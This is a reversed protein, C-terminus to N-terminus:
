SRRSSTSSRRWAARRARPRVAAAAHQRVRRRAARGRPQLGRRASAARVARKGDTFDGSAPAIGSTGSTSRCGCGSAAVEAAGARLRVVAAIEHIQREMDLNMALFRATSNGTLQRRTATTTTCRFATWRTTASRWCRATGCWIPPCSRHQEIRLRDAAPRSRHRADAAGRRAGQQGYERASMHGMQWPGDMENGLCWYRCTTRRTTATRGGCSAGSAHGQRRQLVRRLRGGIRRHRHRLQIGLLPETASWSAGSSSSTRASSTRRSRIGRGIWCPPGSSRRDSATSGTTARCSIAARIACSRCALSRSKARRRRHSIWERRRATIGARLRRHLDGPRPAGPVFRLVRRDLDVRGPSQRLWVRAPGRGGQAYGLASLWPTAALAAGARGLTALFARRDSGSGREVSMAARLRDVRAGDIGSVAVVIYQKGNIMYTMPSGTQKDPMEVAGVDAGTAKDYARFLAIREGAENRHVGGEGAIVLTKTTLTGIFTRGPQGLRPPLNLGQLAPNNKIDDPTSSHPKQWIIDGTKMDYRRSATM